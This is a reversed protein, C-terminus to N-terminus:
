GYMGPFEVNQLEGEANDLENILEEAQERQAQREDVEDQTVPTRDDDEDEADPEVVELEANDDDDLWSQAAARAADLANLANQLRVARTRSERTRNDVTYNASESELFEPVELGELADLGNSLNDRAETVQEYKPLHEMNNGEMNSGWEEMEDRLSEVESRCEDIAGSLDSQVPHNRSTNRAM